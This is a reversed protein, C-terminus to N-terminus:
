NIDLAEDLFTIMGDTQLPKKLLRHAANLMGLYGYKEFVKFVVNPQSETARKSTSLYAEKRSQKVLNYLLDLRTMTSTIEEWVEKLEDEAVSRAETDKENEVYDEIDLVDRLLGRLNGLMVDLSDMLHAANDLARESPRLSRGSRKLWEDNVISYVGDAQVFPIKAEDITLAYFTLPRNTGIAKGEFEKHAVEQLEDLEEYGTPVIIKVDLDSKSTWNKGTVSGMLWLDILPIKGVKQEFRKIQALIDKSVTTKLVPTDQEGEWLDSPLARHPNDVVSERFYRKGRM